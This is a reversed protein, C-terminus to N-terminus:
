NSLQHTIIVCVRDIGCHDFGSVATSNIKNPRARCSRGAAPVPTLYLQQIAPMSQRAPDTPLYPCHGAGENM